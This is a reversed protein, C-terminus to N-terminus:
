FIGATLYKQDAESLEGREPDRDPLDHLGVRPKTDGPWLRPDGQVRAIAVGVARGWERNGLSVWDPEQSLAEIDVHGGIAGADRLAALLALASRESRPPLPPDALHRWNARNEPSADHLTELVTATVAGPDHGHSAAKVCLARVAASSTPRIFSGLRIVAAEIPDLDRTPRSPSLYPSAPRGPATAPNGDADMVRHPAEGYLDAHLDAVAKLLHPAKALDGLETLIARAAGPLIEKRKELGQVHARFREADKEVM